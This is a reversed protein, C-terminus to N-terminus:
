RDIRTAAFDIEPPRGLIHDAVMRGTACALSWGLHGHGTNVVLNRYRTPGLIPRDDPTMPRLGCWHEADDPAKLGPYVENMATLLMNGRRRNESRDYGTFEVTGAVRIRNGLPTVAIKRGDDIVPIRPVDNQGQASFTVSYGKAPYIPLKLGASRGVRVSDCALALVYTDATLVGDSTRVGAIRDGEVLLGLVDTGYAFSVGAKAALGAIGQTFRHADGSRDGPYHIGGAVRDGAGALAPELARCADGDLLHFNLGFKGLLKASKTAAQMSVPDRFVKLTGNDSRDHEIGSEACLDDLLDRNYTTLRLLVEATERWKRETCNSLFKLSWGMLGPLARARLLFPADENGLWRLIGLPTGPAAWPDSMSPTVLGGNAFSTELGAAPQRDVVTVAEGGQALYYGTVTGVIGAGLVLVAM